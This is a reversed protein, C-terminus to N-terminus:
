AIEVDGDEEARIQDWNFEDDCLAFFRLTTEGISIEDGGKLLENSILPSGNLRVINSKGGHGLWVMNTDPDYVIAAHNTRSISMDGFDLQITQDEGRGIASMGVQLTFSAGLGPGGVVVIWGIPFNAAASATTTTTGDFLDVVQDDPQNFGLLRTKARRKRAQAASAHQTPGSPAISEEPGPEAVPEASQTQTADSLAGADDLDWIGAPSAAGTDKKVGSADNNNAAVDDHKDTEAVSSDEGLDSMLVRRAAARSTAKRAGPEHAAVDEVLAAVVGDDTDPKQATHGGILKSFLGM